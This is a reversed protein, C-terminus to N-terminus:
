TFRLELTSQDFSAHKRVNEAGIVVRLNDQHHLGSVTKGKIPIIHDVHWDYGTVITLVRAAARLITATM